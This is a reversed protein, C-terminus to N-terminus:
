HGLLLPVWSCGFSSKFFEAIFGDSGPSKYNKMNKLALSAEALTIEGELSTKEHVTLMSIDQAMDLIECDEVQRESYSREYFM